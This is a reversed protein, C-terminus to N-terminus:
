SKEPTTRRKDFFGKRVRIMKVNTILGAVSYPDSAIFQEAEERDETDILYFSGGSLENEDLKAGAALVKTVNAELYALHLPRTAERDANCILPIDTDILYPM